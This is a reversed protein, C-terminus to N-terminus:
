LGVNWCVMWCTLGSRTTSVRDGLLTQEVLSLFPTSVDLFEEQLIDRRMPLPQVMGRHDIIIPVVPKLCIKIDIVPIETCPDWFVIEALYLPTIFVQLKEWNVKTKTHQEADLSLELEGWENWCELGDSWCELMNWGQM